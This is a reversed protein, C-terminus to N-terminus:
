AVGVRAGDVVVLHRIREEAMRQRAQLMPTQPEVTIPKATMLERVRM